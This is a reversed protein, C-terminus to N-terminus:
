AASAATRERSAAAQVGEFADELWALFQDDLDYRRELRRKTREILSKVHADVAQDTDTGFHTPQIPTAAAQAEATAPPDVFAPAPANQLRLGTVALFAALQEALREGRQRVNQSCESAWSELAALEDEVCAPARTASPPREGSGVKPAQEAAKPTVIAEESAPPKRPAFDARFAPPAQRVLETGRAVPTPVASAQAVIPAAEPARMVMGSLIKLIGVLDPTRTIADICERAQQEDGMIGALAVELGPIHCQAERMVSELTMPSPGEGGEAIRRQRHAEAGMYVQLAIQGLKLASSALTKPDLMTVEDRIYFFKALRSTLSNAEGTTASFETIWEHVWTRWAHDDAAAQRALPPTKSWTPRPYTCMILEVVDEPRGVRGPDSALLAKSVGVFQAVAAVPSHTILIALLARLEGPDTANLTQWRMLLMKRFMATEPATEMEMEADVPLM